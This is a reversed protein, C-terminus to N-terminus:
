NVVQPVLRGGLDVGLAMQRFICETTQIITRHDVSTLVIMSGTKPHQIEAKFGDEGELTQIEIAVGSKTTHIFTTM